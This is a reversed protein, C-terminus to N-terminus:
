EGRVYATRMKVIDLPVFEGQQPKGGAQASSNWPLSYAAVQGSTAEAVYITSSAFQFGARGRPLQSLGTVILYRPNQGVGEFDAAINRTFLSNFKRTKPNMVACKLDGTLYDLFYLGEMGSDVLGTAIAFKDLGVTASAHLPVQPWLGQVNLGIILGILVGAALITGRSQRIPIM